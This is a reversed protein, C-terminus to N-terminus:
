YLCIYVLHFLYTPVKGRQQKPQPPAGAQKRRKRKPSDGHSKAASARATPRRKAAPRTELKARKNSIEGSTSDESQPHHETERYVAVVNGCWVQVRKKKCTNTNWMTELQFSTSLLTSLLRTTLPPLMRCTLLSQKAMTAGLDTAKGNGDYLYRHCRGFM